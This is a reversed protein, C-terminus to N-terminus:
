GFLGGRFRLEHILNKAFFDIVEKESIEFANISEELIAVRREFLPHRSKGKRELIMDRSKGRTREVNARQFAASYRKGGATIGTKSERWDFLILPIAYAYLSLSASPRKATARRLQTRRRIIKQKANTDAAVKRIIQYRVSIMTRNIARAIAANVTAKSLDLADVLEQMEDISRALDMHIMPNM